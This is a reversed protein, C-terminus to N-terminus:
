SALRGQEHFIQHCGLCLVTLDGMDEAGRREYTRHHVNLSRTSSCVQCRHACESLKRARIEQWESTKLYERYPMTRLEKERAKEARLKEVFQERALSVSAARLRECTDCLLPPVDLGKVYDDAAKRSAFPVYEAHCAPCYCGQIYAPAVVELLEKLSCSYAELIEQVPLPKHGHSRWYFDFMEIRSEDSFRSKYSLSPGWFGPAYEHLKM